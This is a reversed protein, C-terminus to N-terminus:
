RPTCQNCKIYRSPEGRIKDSHDRKLHKSLGSKYAYMKSCHPCKINGSLRPQLPMPVPENSPKRGNVDEERSSTHTQINEQKTPLISEQKRSSQVVVHKHDLPKDPTKPLCQMNM